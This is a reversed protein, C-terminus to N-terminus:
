LLWIPTQFQSSTCMKRYLKRIFINGIYYDKLQITKLLVSVKYVQQVNFTIKLWSRGCHSAPISFCFVFSQPDRSWFSSKLLVFFFKEGNKFFKGNTLCLFTTSMCSAQLKILFSVRACTSEQSNQSIELFM